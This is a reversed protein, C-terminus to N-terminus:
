NEKRGFGRNKARESLAKRREESIPEVLRIKVRDKAIQYIEMGFPTSLVKQCLKPYREAYEALQTKLTTAYTSITYFDDEENTLYLTEKEVRTLGSM